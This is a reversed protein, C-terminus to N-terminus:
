DEALVAVRQYLEQLAASLDVAPAISTVGEFLQRAVGFAFGQELEAARADVGRAGAGRAPRRLGDLLRSKGSGPPGEIRVAGGHGEISSAVAAARTERELLAPGPQQRLEVAM